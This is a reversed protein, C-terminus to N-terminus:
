KIYIKLFYRCYRGRERKRVSYRKNVWGGVGEGARKQGTEKQTGTQIAPQRRTARLREKERKGVESERVRM